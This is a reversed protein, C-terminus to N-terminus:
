ANTALSSWLHCVQLSNLKKICSLGAWVWDAGSEIGEIQSQVLSKATLLIIPIHSYNIDEKVATVNYEKAFHRNMFQRFNDNDEFWLLKQVKM